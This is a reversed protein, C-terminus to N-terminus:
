KVACPKNFLIDLDLIEARKSLEETREALINLCCQDPNEPLKTETNDKCASPNLIPCCMQFDKTCTQCLIM